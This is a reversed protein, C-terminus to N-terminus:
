AEVKWIIYAYVFFRLIRLLSFLLYKKKSMGGAGALLAIASFPLPSISAVIVLYEGYEKFLNIYKRIIRRRSNELKAKDKIAQGINFNLFGAGYSILSLIGISQFYPGILETHLSWLMFVEPPIIGFLIESLIFAGMVLPLNNYILGFWELRSEEDFFRKFVLFAVVLLGLFVFGQLVQRILFKTKKNLFHNRKM